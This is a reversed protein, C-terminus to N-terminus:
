RDDDEASDNKQSASEPTGYSSPHSIPPWSKSLREQLAAQLKDNDGLIERLMDYQERLRGLRAVIHETDTLEDLFEVDREFGEGYYFDRAAAHRSFYRSQVETEGPDDFSPNSVAYFLLDSMNLSEGDERLQLTYRQDHGDDTPPLLLATIPLELAAAINVLDDATFNRVRKGEWSREAASVVVKSWGLREGLQDQTLGAVKRWYALNWAVIQNVTVPRGPLSPYESGKTLQTRIEADDVHRSYIFTTHM